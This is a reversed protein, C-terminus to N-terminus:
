KNAKGNAIMQNAVRGMQKSLTRIDARMGAMDEGMAAFRADNAANGRAMAKSQEANYVREGGNFRVLEPGQEGVWAMGARASTTGTAYGPIGLERAVSGISDRVFKELLAFDVSSAYMSQGIQLLQQGAQLLEQTRSADGGRVEGLLTGFNGQAAELKALPSLSSTDSLSQDYLWSDFTAKMAEMSAFGAEQAKILETIAVKQKEYEATLPTLSLGYEKAQTYLSKFQADLDKMATTLADATEPNLLNDYYTGFQIGASLKELDGTGSVKLVRQITSSLGTTQKIVTDMVAKIFADEDYGYSQINSPKTGVRLGDRSGVYVSLSGNTTGGASQLLQALQSAQSLVSDRYDSNEQSFKKGSTFGYAGYTELTELDLSAGIGKDSPKKGGFLGGLASGLFSGVVAGVPGGASGLTAGLASGGLAGATSTALNVFANQNGLGLLSALGGGIAGYGLNGFAGGLTSSLSGAPMPGIFNYANGSLLNGIGSGVGALTNSFLGGNLLGSSLSGLNNFNWGGGSYGGVDGTIGSMVSSSLGAATGLGGVVSLVIPRMLATYAIEALFAKFGAKWGDLLSKWGRDSNVFANRFSERMGDDIQNALSEFAKALPSDREAQQRLEDLELRARLIATELGEAEKATKAVGRLGEMEKISKLLQEEQTLSSAIAAKLRNHAEEQAKAAAKDTEYFSELRKKAEDVSRRSWEGVYDTSMTRNITEKVDAGIETITGSTKAKFRSLDTDLESLNLGPRMENMLRILGNIPTNIVDTIMEVTDLISNYAVVVADGMVIPLKDWNRGILELAADFLGIVGNIFWKVSKSALDMATGVITDIGRLNDTISEKFGDGIMGFAARMQDGMTVTHTTVQKAGKAVEDFRAKLLRADATDNIESQFLKLSATATGLAGILPAFPALMAVLGQAFGKLIGTAGVGPGFIQAIQGGQQMLVMMPAQGMLLGSVVDNVQYTMNRLAMGSLTAGKGVQELAKASSRSITTAAALSNRNADTQVLLRRFQESGAQGALALDRLQSEAQHVERELRQFAGEMQMLQRVSSSSTHDIQQGLKAVGGQAKDASHGIDDLTRKIVRGGETQGQIGIAIQVDSM